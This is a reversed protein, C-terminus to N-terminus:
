TLGTGKVEFIPNWGFVPPGRPKVVTGETKGQFLLIEPEGGSQSPGPSFAFTCVATADRNPFGDLLTYLGIVRRPYPPRRRSPFTPDFRRVRDVKPVMKHLAWPSRGPSQLMISHRGRPRTRTGPPVVDSHSSSCLACRCSWDNPPGARQYTASM